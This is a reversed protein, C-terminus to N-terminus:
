NIHSHTLTCRENKNQPCDGAIVRHERSRIDDKGRKRIVVFWAPPDEVADNGVVLLLLNDVVDSLKECDPRGKRLEVDDERAGVVIGVVMFVVGVGVLAALELAVDVM